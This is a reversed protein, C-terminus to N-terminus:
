ERNEDPSLSKLFELTQAEEDKTLDEPSAGGELRRMYMDAVEEVDDVGADVKKFFLEKGVDINGEGDDGFVFVEYRGLGDPAVSVHYEGVKVKARAVDQGTLVDKYKTVEIKPKPATASEM